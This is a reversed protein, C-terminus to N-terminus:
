RTHVTLSSQYYCICYDPDFITGSPILDSIIAGQSDCIRECEDAERHQIMLAILLLIILIILMTSLLNSM